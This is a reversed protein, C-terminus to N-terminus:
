KLYPDVKGIFSKAQGDIDTALGMRVDWRNIVSKKEAVTKGGMKRRYVPCAHWNENQVVGTEDCASGERPM